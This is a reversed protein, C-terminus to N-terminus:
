KRRMVFLGAAGLGALIGLIPFPSKTNQATTKESITIQKTASHGDDDTVTVTVIGKKVGTLNGVADITALASDNVKWTYVHQHGDNCSAKLLIKDGINLSDSGEIILKCNDDANSVATTLVPQDAGIAAATGVTALCVVALVALIVGTIKMKTM